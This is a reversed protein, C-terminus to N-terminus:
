ASPFGSLREFPTQQTETSVGRESNTIANPIHQYCQSLAQLRGLGGEYFPARAARQKENKSPPVVNRIILQKKEEKQWNGAPPM